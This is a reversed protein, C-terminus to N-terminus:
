VVLKLILQHCFSSTGPGEGVEVNKFVVGTSDGTIVVSATQDIATSPPNLKPSPINYEDFIGLFLVNNSDDIRLGPM